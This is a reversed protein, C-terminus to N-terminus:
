TGGVAKGQTREAVHDGEHLTPFLWLESCGLFVRYDSSGRQAMPGPSTPTSM